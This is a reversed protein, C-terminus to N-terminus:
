VSEKKKELESLPITIVTSGTSYPAVEYPNYILTLGKASYGMNDPLIFGEEPFIFGADNLPETEAVAHYARFKEEALQKLKPGYRSKLDIREGNKLSYSQVLTATNGHAGGMFESDDVMVTLVSDGIIASQEGDLYLYWSTPDDPFEMKFLEYGEIFSQALSEWSGTSRPEPLRSKILRRYQDEVKKNIQTAIAADGESLIPLVIRAETCETSDCDEETASYEEYSLEYAPMKESSEQTQSKDSETCSMIGFLAIVLSIRKM